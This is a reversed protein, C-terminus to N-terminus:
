WTPHTSKSALGKDEMTTDSIETVVLAMKVWSAKLSPETLILLLRRLLHKLFQCATNNNAWFKFATTFWYWHFNSNLLSWLSSRAGGHAIVASAVKFAPYSILAIRYLYIGVAPIVYVNKQTRFHEHNVIPTSPFAALFQALSSWLYISHSTLYHSHTMWFWEWGSKCFIHPLWTLKHYIRMVTSLDCLRYNDNRDALRVWLSVLTNHLDPFLALRADLRSSIHNHLASTFVHLSTLLSIDKDHLTLITRHQEWRWGRQRM